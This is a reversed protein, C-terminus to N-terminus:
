VDAATCWLWSKQTTFTGERYLNIGGDWAPLKPEAAAIPSTAPGAMWSAGLSLAVLLALLPGPLRNPRAM